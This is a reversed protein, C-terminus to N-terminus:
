AGGSRGSHLHERLGSARLRGTDTEPLSGVFYFARPTKNGGLRQRVFQRLVGELQQEGGTSKLVVFAELRTLGDADQVGVVASEAVREHENLVAEVELPSVWMGGVKLMEDIRGQFYFYGSEDRVFTDGTRLWEGHMATQTLIRDHWYFPCTSGGKVMLMGSDGAPVDHGEDDVVKAEWGEVVTGTCDPRVDEPRNSIFIHCSETSGIGDLIDLGTKERWRRLLSGGLAEGASVCVRVSGFYARKWTSPGAALLSAYSTPVGFFVTPKFEGTAELVARPQPPEALLATTAGVSFPFYLGNGLGYAWYLKSVSFTVDSENIGLVHKAYTDACFRMDRQLHPVCKPRGTTGSTYLWFCMDDSKTNAPSLADEAEGVLEEFSVEDPRPNGVVVVHRLYSSGRRATRFAKAVSEGVVAVKARSDDLMDAYVLPHLNTNVPVPVAGIKIAGFFTTAFELSDPLAMLVRNEVEVGLGLLANG